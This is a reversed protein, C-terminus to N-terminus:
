FAMDSESVAGGEASRFTDGIGANVGSCSEVFEDSDVESGRCTM